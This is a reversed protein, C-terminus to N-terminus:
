GESCPLSPERLPPPQPQQMCHYRPRGCGTSCCSHIPHAAQAMHRNRGATGTATYQASAARQRRGVERNHHVGAGASGHKEPGSKEGASVVGTVRQRGDLAHGEGVVATWAHPVEIRIASRAEMGVRAAGHSSTCWAVWHVKCVMDFSSSNCSASACCHPLLFIHPLPSPLLTVLIRLAGAFASPFIGRAFFTFISCLILGRWHSTFQQFSTPKAITHVALAPCAICHHFLLSGFLPFSDLAASCSLLHQRQAAAVSPALHRLLLPGLRSVLQTLPRATPLTAAFFTHQTKRTTCPLLRAAGLHEVICPFALGPPSHRPAVACPKSHLAIICL